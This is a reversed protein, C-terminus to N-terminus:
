ANMIYNAITLYCETWRTTETKEKDGTFSIWDAHMHIDEGSESDFYLVEESDNHEKLIEKLYGVTM